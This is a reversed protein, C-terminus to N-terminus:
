NSVESVNFLRGIRFCPPKQYGKSKSYERITPSRSEFSLCLFERRSQWIAFAISTLYGECEESSNRGKNYIKRLHIDFKEAYVCLILM